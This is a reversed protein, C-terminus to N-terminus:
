ISDHFTRSKRDAMHNWKGLIRIASIVMIRDLTYCWMDLALATLHQSRTGGLWNIYAVATCNDLGLQIHNGKILPSFARLALFAAELDLYNIHDLVELEKWRVRISLEQLQAGWGIKSADLFIVSDVKPPIILRDKAEADVLTSGQNCRRVSKYGKQVKDGQPYIVQILDKQIARFHFPAMELAPLAEQCQGLFILIKSATPMNGPLSLTSLKLKQLKEEPLLLLMELSNVIFCLFPITQTPELVSKKRKILFCLSELVRIVIETHEVAREPSDAMILINDLFILLCIGMSRQCDIDQHVVKSIILPRISSMHVSLAHGELVIKFLDKIKSKSSYDLLCRSSGAKDHLGRELPYGETAIYRKDQISSVRCASEARAHRGSAKEGMRRQSPSFTPFLNIQIQRVFLM